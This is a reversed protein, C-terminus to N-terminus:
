LEIPEFKAFIAKAEPLENLPIYDCVAAYKGWLAVVDANQHATAIAGEHWEFVEIVVGDKARMALAPRDTALGLRRLVPVHEKTLALLDGERGPKPRYTAIVMDGM